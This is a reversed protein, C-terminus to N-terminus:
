GFKAVIPVKANALIDYTTDDPVLGRDLMQDHLGFAEEVNRENFYGAILINYILARVPINNADMEGLFKRANEVLGNNCLGHILATYCVEDPVIGCDVMEQYLQSACVVDGVKLAGDLLTTYTALDCAVGEEHMRRRLEHASKMDHQHKYGNIITNYIATNPTLGDVTMEDLLARAARLNGTKCFGDILANYANADLRLGKKTMANRMKLAVEICNKKCFWDIFSTYTFVNPSLGDKSMRQYMTVASAIMGEKIFGDIISNYTMTIPVFGEKRFKELMNNAECSQGAKCLGDIITNYTYNNSDVGSAQMTDYMCLAQEVEGNKFYGEILTTYTEVTPSMNREILQSYMSSTLDMRGRNCYGSMLINYSVITPELGDRVMRDWVDCAEQIKRQRCLWHMVVNYTVVNGVGRDVAENFLEYVHAWMKHKLMGRILGNVVFVNPYMGMGKMRKYLKYAREADGNGLCDGIMVEFTGESRAFVANLDWGRRIMEGVLRLADEMGGQKVCADVVWAYMFGSPVLGLWKMEELLEVARRSDSNECVSHILTSYTGLDFDTGKMEPKWRMFVDVISCGVSMRRDLMEEYVERATGVLGSKVLVHLLAKRPGPGPRVGRAVMTQFCEAADDPRGFNVYCRLVLDFLQPEDDNVSLSDVLDSPGFGAPQVSLSRKLLESASFPRQCPVLLRLADRLPGLRWARRGSQLQLRDLFSRVLKPPRHTRLLVAMAQREPAAAEPNACESPPEDRFASLPSASFPRRLHLFWPSSPPPPPILPTRRM